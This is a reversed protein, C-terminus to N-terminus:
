VEEEAEEARADSDSSKFASGAEGGRGGEAAGLEEEGAAEM